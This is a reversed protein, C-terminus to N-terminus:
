GDVKALYAAIVRSFQEPDLTERLMRVCLIRLEIQHTENIALRKELDKRVLFDQDLIIAERLRARLMRAEDELQRRTTPASALWNDLVRNQDLDLGLSDRMQTVHPMLKVIPEALQTEAAQGIMPLALVLPLLLSRLRQIPKLHTYRDM